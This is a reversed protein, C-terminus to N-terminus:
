TSNHQHVFIRYHRCKSQHRKKSTSDAILFSNNKGQVFLYFVIGNSIMTQEDTLPEGSGLIRAV